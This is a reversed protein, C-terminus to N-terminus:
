KALKTLENMVAQQLARHVGKQLHRESTEMCQM